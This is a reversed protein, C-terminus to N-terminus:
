LPITSSYDVEVCAVLICQYRNLSAVWILLGVLCLSKWISEIVSQQSVIEGLSTVDSTIPHSLFLSHNFFLREWERIDEGIYLSPWRILYARYPATRRTFFSNLTYKRKNWATEFVWAWGLYGLVKYVCISSDQTIGRGLTRLAGRSEIYVIM